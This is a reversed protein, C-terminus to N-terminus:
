NVCVMGNGHREWATGMGNGHREWATGMGNGHREWAANILVHWAMGRGQWEGDTGHGEHFGAHYVSINSSSTQKQYCSVHFESQYGSSVLLPYTAWM